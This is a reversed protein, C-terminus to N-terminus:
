NLQHRKGTAMINKESPSLLDLELIMKMYEDDIELGSFSTAAMGAAAAELGLLDEEAAASSSGM